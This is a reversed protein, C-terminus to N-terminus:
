RETLTVRADVATSDFNQQLFAVWCCIGYVVMSNVVLVMVDLLRGQHERLCSRRETVTDM